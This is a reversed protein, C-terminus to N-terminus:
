KFFEELWSNDVEEVPLDLEYEFVDYLSDLFDEVDSTDPYIRYRDLGLRHLDRRRITDEHQAYLSLAADKEDLTPFYLIHYRNLENQLMGWEYPYRNFFSSQLKLEFRTIPYNIYKDKASKYYVKARKMVKNHTRDYKEIYHSTPYPQREYVKYYNVRPAKKNCFAYVYEFPCFMDVAIDIGTYEFRIEHTNLYAVLRILCDHAIKDNRHYQKLGAIEITIFYITRRYIDKYAGSTLELITTRGTNVTHTYAGNPIPNTNYNVKLFPYTTHLARALRDMVERQDSSNIFDIQLKLTDINVTYNIM